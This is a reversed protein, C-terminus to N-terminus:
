GITKETIRKGGKSDFNKTEPTRESKKAAELSKYAFAILGESALFQCGSECSSKRKFANRVKVEEGRAKGDSDSLGLETVHCFLSSSSCRGRLYAASDRGERRRKHKMM